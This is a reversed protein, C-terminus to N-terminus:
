GAGLGKEKGLRDKEWVWRRGRVRRGRVRERGLGDGEGVWRRWRVGWGWGWVRRGERVRRKGWVWRRGRVRRGVRVSESGM